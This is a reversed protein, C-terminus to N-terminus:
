LIPASMTSEPNEPASASSMRLYMTFMPPFYGSLIQLLKQSCSAAYNLNATISGRVPGKAEGSDMISTAFSESSNPNSETVPLSEIDKPSFLLYWKEAPVTSATSLSSFSPNPQM